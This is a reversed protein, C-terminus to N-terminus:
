DNLAEVVDAPTAKGQSVIWAVCITDERVNGLSCRAEIPDRGAAVMKLIADETRMHSFTIAAAISMIVMAAICCFSLWFRADSDM